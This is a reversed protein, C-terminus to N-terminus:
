GSAPHGALGAAFRCVGAKGHGTLAILVSKATAPTARLSRATIQGGHLVVINKALSLGLGLGGQARDLSREGQSFVDFIYPLLTSSIGGGNDSVTVVTWGDQV